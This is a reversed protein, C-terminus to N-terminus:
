KKNLYKLRLNRNNPSLTRPSEKVPLDRQEIDEEIMKLMTKLSREGISNDAKGPLEDVRYDVANLM